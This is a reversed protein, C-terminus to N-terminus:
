TNKDRLTSEVLRVIYNLNPMSCDDGIWCKSDSLLIKIQQETLGVWEKKKYFGAANIKKYFGAANIKKYFGAANLTGELNPGFIKTPQKFEMMPTVDGQTVSMGPKFMAMSQKLELLQAALDKIQQEHCLVMNNIKQQTTNFIDM